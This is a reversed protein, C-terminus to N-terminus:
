SSRMVDSYKREFERVAVSPLQDRHDHVYSSVEDGFQNIASRLAWSIAKTILKDKEERLQNINILTLTLLRDDKTHRLAKILLVLSARRHSITSRYAFDKLLPEWHEWRALYESDSFTSQCTTDIERWGELCNIWRDLTPLPLQQRLRPSTELLFGALCAEEISPGHYLHDLTQQWDEYSLSPHRKKWEKVFGRMTPNSLGNHRRRSGSHPFGDGRKEPPSKAIFAQFECAYSM